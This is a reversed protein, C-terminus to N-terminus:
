LQMWKRIANVVQTTHTFQPSHRAQSIVVMNSDPVLQAFHEGMYLPTVADDAGWIFLTPCAVSPLESRIDTSVVASMTQRLVPSAKLYDQEGIIKYVFSRILAISALPRGIKALFFFVWRKIKAAFRWDRTGSNDILILREFRKPHRAAATAAIQGGFSHGLVCAPREPLTELLWDVYTDLEWPEDLSTDLGPIPLFHPNIGIARLEHMCGQWKEENQPDTSWGHLIYIDKKHKVVRMIAQVSRNTSWLRSFTKVDGSVFDSRTTTYKQGYM